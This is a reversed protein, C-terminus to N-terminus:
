GFNLLKNVKIVFEYAMYRGSNCKLTQGLLLYVGAFVENRSFNAKKNVKLNFVSKQRTKPM